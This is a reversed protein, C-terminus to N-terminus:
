PADAACNLHFHAGTAQTTWPTDLDSSGGKPRMIANAMSKYHDNPVGMWSKGPLLTAADTAFKDADANIAAYDNGTPVGKANINGLDVASGNGHPCNCSRTTSAITFKYTQSLKLIVALITQKMNTNLLNSGGVNGTAKIQSILEEKSGSPLSPDVSASTPSTSSGTDSDAKTLDEETSKAISEDLKYLRYRFAEDTGLKDAGCEGGEATDKNIPKNISYQSAAPDFCKGIKSDLNSIQDQSIHKENEAISYSPDNQMKNLEDPSFGWQLQDGYPNYSATEAAYVKSNGGLLAVGQGLSSFPKLVSSLSAFGKKLMQLGGTLSSPAYVSATGVLSFPNDAAFYRQTFGKQNWDNRLNTVYQKDVGKAEDPSIPRGYQSRVQRNQMVNTGVAARDYYAAGQESGSFTSGSFAMAVYQLLLAYGGFAVFTGGAKAAGELSLLSRGTEFLTDKVANLAISVAARGAENEVAVEGGGTLFGAVIQVVIDGTGVAIMGQPSLIFSCFKEDANDLTTDTGPLLSVLAGLGTARSPSTFHAIMDAYKPDISPAVKPQEAKALNIPQNTQYQYAASNEAGALQASATNYAESTVKGAKVQDRAALVQLGMKSASTENQEAIQDVHSFTLNAMCAASIALAGISVKSAAEQLNTANEIDQKIAADFEEKNFVGGNKEINNKIRDENKYEKAAKDVTESGSETEGPSTEKNSAANDEAIAEPPKKGLLDRANNRWRSFKFGVKDAITGFVRGQVYRPELALNESVASEIQTTFEKRVSMRERWDSVKNLKDYSEGFGLEKTIGDLSVERGEFKVKSLRNNELEINFKGERGLQSIQNDVNRMKIRDVLSRGQTQVTGEGEVVSADFIDQTTREQMIGNFRAYGTAALIEGFHIVKLQSLIVAAIIFVIAIIGVLSTGVILGTRSSDKNMNGSMARKKEQRYGFDSDDDQGLSSLESQEANSREASDPNDERDSLQDPELGNAASAEMAKEDATNIGTISRLDDDSVRTDEDDHVANPM